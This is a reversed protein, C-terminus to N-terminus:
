VEREYGSRESESARTQNTRKILFACMLLFFIVKKGERGFGESYSDMKLGGRRADVPGDWRGDTRVAELNVCGGKRSM